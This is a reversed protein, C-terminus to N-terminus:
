YSEKSSTNDECLQRIKALLECLTLSFHRITVVGIIATATILCTSVRIVDASIKQAIDALSALAATEAVGVHILHGVQADALIFEDEAVVELVLLTDAYVAAEDMAGLLIFVAVLLGPFEGWAEALFHCSSKAKGWSVEGVALFFYGDAPIKQLPITLTSGLTFELVQLPIILVIGPPQGGPLLADGRRHASIIGKVGHIVRVSAKIVMVRHELPPPYISEMKLSILVIEGTRASHFVPEQFLFVDHEAFTHLVELLLDVVEQGGIFDEQLLVSLEAVLGLHHSEARCGRGGLLSQCGSHACDGVIIVANGLSM